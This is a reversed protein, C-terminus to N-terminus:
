IIKFSAMLDLLIDLKEKMSLAKWKNTSLKQLKERLDELLANEKVRIISRKQDFSGLQSM